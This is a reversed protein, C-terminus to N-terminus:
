IRARIIIYQGEPTIGEFRVEGRTQNLIQEMIKPSSIPKRNIHTIICNEPFNRKFFASQARVIKVGYDIKFLKKEIKSIPKLEVGFTKSFYSQNYIVGTEGERNLLVLTKSLLKKDRVIQLKLRQGPYANGILAEMESKNEIPRDDISLVVDGARLQAQSAASEPEIKSILVGRLSALSLKEATESNIDMLELGSFARQVEGYKILDRVVKQVINVPVAFSYGSYYGTRSLIATNIGVLEGRNNVLAGGSNGPNIAADTQIFSEIPFRNRLLNINRGKASVIGATVTSTLNFPNGVALVWEGIRLHDSNGLDIAPLNKAEVQIVAIDTSPDSGIRKARYTRKGHVVEIQDADEIVHHNTVIYGEQSFIVGSGSSVRNTSETSGFFWDLMHAPYGAESINKIFVVSEKSKNAADVLSPLYNGDYKQERNNSSFVHVPKHLVKMDTSGENQNLPLHSPSQTAGVTAIPKPTSKLFNLVTTSEMIFQCLLAGMFGGVCGFAFTYRKM